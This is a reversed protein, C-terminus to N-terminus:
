GHKKAIVCINYANWFYSKKGRKTCFIKSIKFGNKRLLKKLEWPTFAHYYRKIGSDSWKIFIDKFDYKKSFLSKILQKLSKKQFLNWVMMMLTGDPKLIRNIEQLTKNRLKQSPVHHFAAICFVADMSADMLPLELMDGYMFKGNPFKRKAEELLHPNNDIGIYDFDEKLTYLLRGNGCGIDAIKDTKKLYKKFNEFEPWPEERTKSFEASIKAYDQKVKELLEKATEEKM